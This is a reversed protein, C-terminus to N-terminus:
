GATDLRLAPCLSLPDCFAFALLRIGPALTAFQSSIAITVERARQSTRTLRTPIVKYLLLSGLVLLTSMVKSPHSWGSMVLVLRNTEMTLKTYSVAYRGGFDQNIDDGGGYIDTVAESPEQSRM